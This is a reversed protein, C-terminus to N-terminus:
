KNMAAATEAAKKAYQLAKAFNKSRAFSRALKLLNVAAAAEVHKAELQGVIREAEQVQAQVEAEPGSAQAAATAVAPPQAAPAKDPAPATPAPHVAAASEPGPAPHAPMAAPAKRAAPSPHVAATRDPAPVPHAPAAAPAKRAAPAESPAAAPSRAAPARGKRREQEEELKIITAETSALLAPDKLDRGLAAIGSSGTDLRSAREALSRLRRVGEDFRLFERRLTEMDSAVFRELPETRFGESKWGELLELFEQRQIGLKQEIALLERELEPLKDPDKLLPALREADKRVSRDMGNLKESFMRLVELDEEFKMVPEELEGLGGDRLADFRGVSYGAATWGDVREMLVKRRAVVRAELETLKTEIDDIADPDNCRAKLANAEKAFVQDIADCRKALALLGVVDKEFRELAKQQDGPGAGRVAELRAISLGASRFKRISEDFGSHAGRKGGMEDRRARATELRLELAKIHKEQGELTDPDPASLLDTPGTKAVSMGAEGHKTRFESERSALEQLRLALEADKKNLEEEWSALESETDRLADERGRLDDVVKKRIAAERSRSEQVETEPDKAKKKFLAGGTMLFYTSRM